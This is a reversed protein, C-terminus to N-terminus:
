IRHNFSLIHLNVLEYTYISHAYIYINYIYLHQQCSYHTNHSIHLCLARFYPLLRSKVKFKFRDSTYWRFLGSHDSHIIWLFHYSSTICGFVFCLVAFCYICKMPHIWYAHWYTILVRRATVTAASVAGDLTDWSLSQKKNRYFCKIHWVNVNHYSFSITLTYNRPHSYMCSWASHLTTQDCNM